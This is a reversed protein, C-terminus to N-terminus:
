SLNALALHNLLLLIYQQQEGEDNSTTLNFKLLSSPNLRGRRVAQLREPKLQLLSKLADIEKFLFAL